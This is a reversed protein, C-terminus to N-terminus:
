KAVLYRLNPHRWHRKLCTVELMRGGAAAVAREVDPRPLYHIQVAPLGRLTKLLPRLRCRWLAYCAARFSGPQMARGDPAQFVAVGGPRLLRVFEGVYRTAVEPPIHQLTIFSYIFDFSEDAFVALDGAANTVYRVRDGHRNLERARECMSEAIDVGVVEHCYEALAQTLRGVGCGFDMAQGRRVEIGSEDLCRFVSDIHRRGTSFFEATDWRNHRLNKRSLVAYFPDDRGLREYTSRVLSLSM